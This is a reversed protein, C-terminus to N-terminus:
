KSEIFIQVSLNGEIRMRKNPTFKVNFWGKDATVFDTLNTEEQDTTFTGITTESDEEGVQITVSPDTLEEETIGGAESYRYNKLKFSLFVKNLAIATAPMYFRLNVPNDADCNESVNMIYLNTAGQMYKGLNQEEERQKRVQEVFELARNSVELELNLNGYNNLYNIGKIRFDGDIDAESSTVTIKDGIDLSAVDEFPEDPLVTIRDITDKRDLLRKSAILEAAGVDQLTKDIAVDEMLGHIQISSGTQASSTNFYQEIYCNKLHASAITSNTGRTCGTLTDSSIGAYTFHEEAIRATGTADFDSADLLEISSNTSDINSNLSSNQTSGAYTTTELQNIGDGYGLIRVFNSLSTIDREQATFSANVTPNYVKNTESETGYDDNYISAIDQITLTSNYIRGDDVKGDMGIANGHASNGFKLRRNEASGYGTFIIDTGIDTTSGQQERNVYFKFEQDTPNYVMVLHNWSGTSFNSTANISYSNGTADNMRGITARFKGGQTEFRWNYHDMIYQNSDTKGMNAWVMFTHDGSHFIDSTATTGKIFDVDTGDFSFANNIKGAVSLTDSNSISILDNLLSGSDIVTTNSDSDNLKWHGILDPHTQDGRTSAINIFNEEYNDSSTQSVWWDYNITESLDAIGKLRDVFEYRISINGYDTSFIGSSATTMIDSNLEKAIEQASYDTYIIRNERLTLLKNGLETLLFDEDEKQLHGVIALQRDMHLSEMGFGRATLALQDGYEITQIRGKLIMKTGSFFLVEAQEKFYVKQATTVDFLKVEFENLQNQRKNVKFFEVQSFLTWESGNLVYFTNEGSAPATDFTLAM